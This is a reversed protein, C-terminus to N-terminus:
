AAERESCITSKEFRSVPCRRSRVLLRSPKVNLPREARAAERAEATAQREALVELSPEPMMAGGVGLLVVSLGLLGVAHLRGRLRAVRPNIIGVAAWAFVGLSVFALLAGM